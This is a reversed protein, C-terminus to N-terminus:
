SDFSAPFDRLLYFVKKSQKIPFSLEFSTHRYAFSLGYQCFWTPIGGELSAPSGCPELHADGDKKRWM